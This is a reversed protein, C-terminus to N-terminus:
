YSVVNYSTILSVCEQRGAMAITPVQRIGETLMQCYMILTYFLTLSKVYLKEVKNNIYM